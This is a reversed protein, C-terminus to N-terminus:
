RELENIRIKYRYYELVDHISKNLSIEPKWGIESSIKNNNGVQYDVFFDQMTPENVEVSIRQHTMSLFIDVLNKISTGQGSCINYIEGSKGEEALLRYARVIDRVDTFDRISDLKKVKVVPPKNKVEIEAVQIALDSCVLGPYARPGIHNFPRAILVNLKYNRMYYKVIEEQFLKSLGYLTSPLLPSGEDIAKKFHVGYVSSSSIMITKHSYSFNIFAEFFNITSQINTKFMVNTNEKNRASILFFIYDPATKRIIETILDIEEFNVIYLHVHRLVHAINELSSQKRITGYVEYGHKILHEALHSGVFGTIGFILAKKMM